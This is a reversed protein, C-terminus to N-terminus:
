FGAFEPYQALVAKKSRYADTYDSGIVKWQGRERVLTFVAPTGCSYFRRCSAVERYGKEEAVVETGFLKEWTMMTMAEV